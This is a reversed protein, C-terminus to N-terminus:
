DSFQNLWIAFADLIKLCCERGSYTIMLMVLIGCIAASEKSVALISYNVTLKKSKGSEAGKFL